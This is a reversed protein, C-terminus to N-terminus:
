SSRDLLAGVVIERFTVSNCWGDKCVEKSPRYKKIYSDETRIPPGNYSLLVIDFNLSLM